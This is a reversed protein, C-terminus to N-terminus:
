YAYATLFRALAPAGKPSTACFFYCDRVWAFIVGQPTPGIVWSRDSTTRAAQGIKKIIDEVLEKAEGADWCLALQVTVSEGKCSYVANVPDNTLEGSPTAHPREFDAVTYPLLVKIETGVPITRQMRFLLDQNFKTPAMPTAPASKAAEVAAPRADVMTTANMRQTADPDFPAATFAPSASAAPAESIPVRQMKQTADPDFPKAAPAPAPATVPAKAGVPAPTVAKAPEEELPAPPADRLLEALDSQLFQGAGKALSSVDSNLMKGADKVLSGLDKNLFAGLKGLAM